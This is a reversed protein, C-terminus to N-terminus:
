DYLRVVTYDKKDSYKVVCIDGKVARIFYRQSNDAKIYPKQTSRAVHVILKNDEDGTLVISEINNTKM